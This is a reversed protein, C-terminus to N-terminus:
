RRFLPEIQVLWRLFDQRRSPPVALADAFADAAAAGSRYTTTTTRFRVAGDILLQLSEAPMRRRRGPVFLGIDRVMRRISPQYSGVRLAHGAAGIRTDRILARALAENTAEEVVLGEPDAYAIAHVPSYGHLEEHAVLTVARVHREDRRPDNGTLLSGAERSLRDVVPAIRIARTSFDHTGLTRPGLDARVEIESSRDIAPRPLRRQHEPFTAEIAARMTSRTRVRDGDRLAELMPVAVDSPLAGSRVRSLGSLPGSALAIAGPTAAIGPPGSRQALVRGVPIPVGRVDIVRRDDTPDDFISARTPGLLELRFREPQQALWEEATQRNTDVWPRAPHAQGTREAVQRRFFHEDVIAEHSCLCNPHPTEPVRDKPYGGPGLDHLNQNAFLDCVDARPHAPSLKWRFGMTYPSAAVSARFAQRHAEATETRMIRRAIIQARDEVHRAVIADINQPTARRLDAAFQRVTSRLTTLGERRDRGEGLREMQDAYKEIARELYQQDGRDLSTRAADILEQTYRPIPVNISERNAELFQESARFVGERAAISSRAIRGADQGVEDLNRYLRSSLPVHDRAFQGNETADRIRQQQEVALGSPMTAAGPSHMPGGPGTLQLHQQQAARSADSVGRAIARVNHTLAAGAMERVAGSVLADVQAPSATRLQRALRDLIPRWAKTTQRDAHQVRAILAKRAQM